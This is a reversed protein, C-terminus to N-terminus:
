KIRQWLFDSYCNGILTKIKINVAGWVIHTVVWGTVELFAIM